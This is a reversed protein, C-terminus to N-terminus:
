CMIKPLTLATCCWFVHPGLCSTEGVVKGFVLNIFFFFSVEPSVRLTVDISNTLVYIKLAVKLYIAYIM